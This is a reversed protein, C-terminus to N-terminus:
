LIFVNKKTLLLSLFEPFSYFNGLWIWTDTVPQQWLAPHLCALTVVACVQDDKWVVRWSNAASVLQCTCRLNRVYAWKEFMHVCIIKPLRRWLCLHMSSVQSSWNEARSIKTGAWFWFKPRKLDGPFIYIDFDTCGMGYPGRSLGEEMGERLWQSSMKGIMWQNEKMVKSEYM